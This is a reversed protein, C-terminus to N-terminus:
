GISSRSRCWRAPDELLPRGRRAVDAPRRARDTRVGGSDLLVPPLGVHRRAARRPDGGPLQPVGGHAGARLGERGERVDRARGRPRPPDTRGDPRGPQHRRSRVVITEGSRSGSRWPTAGPTPRGRDRAPHHRVRVLLGPDRRPAGPLHRAAVSRAHRRPPALIEKNRNDESLARQMGLDSRQYLPPLASPSPTGTAANASAACTFRHRTTATTRSTEGADQM